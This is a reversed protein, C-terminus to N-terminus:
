NSREVRSGPGRMTRSIASSSATRRFKKHEFLRVQHDSMGRQTPPSTASGAWTGHDLNWHPGASKCSCGDSFDAKEHVHFGHKSGPEGLNKIDWSITISDANEQVLTVVGTCPKEPETGDCSKGNPGVPSTARIPFSPM